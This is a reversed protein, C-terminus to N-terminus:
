GKVPTNTNKDAYPGGTGHCRPQEWLLTVGRGGAGVGKGRGDVPPGTAWQPAM